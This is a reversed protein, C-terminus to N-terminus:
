CGLRHEGQIGPDLPNVSQILKEPSAELRAQVKAWALGEHRNLNKEFRVKLTGLLEERQQATLNKASRM